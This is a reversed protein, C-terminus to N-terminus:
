RHRNRGLCSPALGVRALPIALLAAMIMLGHVLYLDVALQIRVVRWLLTALILLCMTGTGWVLLYRRAYRASVGRWSYAALCYKAAVAISVIWVFATMRAPDGLLWGPLRTADFAMAAIGLVGLSLVSAIFLRRRGFLGNWLRSVMFRWTLFIGAVVLLVAIGYVAAVSQGHSMWLQTAFRRMSDLNAWLSLWVGLFMLVLLWSTVVSVAAVKVKIAVIDEDTLPRVAVFAPLSADDSWFTPKAFGIGVPVALAIPMALTGFLLRICDGADDRGLWSLPGIVVLLVGGVLLPLVLGSCRWEFWFHAAAPSAFAPRTKPKAVDFAAALRSFGIEWVGGGRRLRAVHQVAVLFTMGAVGAVLVALPVESRLLLPLPPSMSPLLSIGFIGVVLVGVVVLRMAGLRDLTWLVTQYFVMLAGLLVASFAPTTPGALSLADLWLLYLLETAAIGALVPVAVLRVSSVPLTFLRQPFRGLGRGDGSETYNFIGFLLLFSVMRLLEVLPSSDASGRDSFELLRGAVTVGIIAAVISRHRRWIEWLLTVSPSRM